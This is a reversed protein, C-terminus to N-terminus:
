LLMTFLIVNFKKRNNKGRVSYAPSNKLKEFASLLEKHNIIGM